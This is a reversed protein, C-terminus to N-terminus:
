NRSGTKLALSSCAIRWCCSLIVPSVGQFLLQLFTGLSTVFAPVMTVGSHGVCAFKAQSLHGLTGM